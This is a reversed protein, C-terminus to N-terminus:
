LPPVAHRRLPDYVPYSTKGNFLDEGIRAGLINFDKIRTVRFWKEEKWHFLGRARQLSCITAMSKSICSDISCWLRRTAHLMYLFQPLPEWNLVLIWDFVSFWLLIQLILVGNRYGIYCSHFLLDVRVMCKPLKSRRTSHVHVVLLDVCHFRTTQQIKADFGASSCSFGNVQSCFWLLISM